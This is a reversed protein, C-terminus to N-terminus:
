TKGAPQRTSDALNSQHGPDTSVAHASEKIDLPLPNDYDRKKREQSSLLLRACRTLDGIFPGPDRWSFFAHAKRGRVSQWWEGFTLEGRRWYYAASQLDKRVDMWKVGGYHQQRNEPLPLGAADCYQTYLLEVGGAEAIASRGTPRGINPEVIFHRGCRADRKMELYGLGVFGVSGFLRLTEALVTDNRCEEGLCSQGVAPPWQRLKRAVFTALPQSQADYYCNCSYLSDDRGEIWEQAILLDAWPRCWDYLRQLEDRSGVKFAKSTTSASWLASRAPPKLVCPYRLNRAAEQVEDRNRLYFTQPIPLGHERAFTYFRFKDMLMEVVDPDPLRIRFWKSLQQRNRSVLLVDPDRCPFLVAKEELREGLAALADLTEADSGAQVIQECVKTRCCFHNPDEAFAIVPVRRAALIRAAQLGQMSTLGLLIAYPLKKQM